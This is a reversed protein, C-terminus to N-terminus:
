PHSAPLNLLSTTCTVSAAIGGASGVDRQSGIPCGNAGGPCLLIYDSQVVGVGLFDPDVSSLSVTLVKGDSSLCGSGTTSLVVTSATKAFGAWPECSGKAPTAFGTGIFTTGGSGFGGAVAICFNSAAFSSVPAIMGLVLFLQPRKFRFM